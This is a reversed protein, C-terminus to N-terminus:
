SCIAFASIELVITNYLASAYFVRSKVLWAFIQTESCLKQLASPACCSASSGEETRARPMGAYLQRRIIVCGRVVEKWPFPFALSSREMTM